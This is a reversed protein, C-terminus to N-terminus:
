SPPNNSCLIFTCSIKLSFTLCKGISNSTGSSVSIIIEKDSDENTLDLEMYSFATTNSRYNNNSKLEHTEENYDFGYISMLGWVYEAVEQFQEITTVHANGDAYRKFVGGLSKIYKKYGGFEKLKQEYNRNNFDNKHAKIIEKTEASFQKM